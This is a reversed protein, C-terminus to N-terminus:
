KIKDEMGEPYYYSISLKPQTSYAGDASRISLKWTGTVKANSNSDYNIMDYPFRVEAEYLGSGIPTGAYVRGNPSTLTFRGRYMSSELDVYARRAIAADPTGTVKFYFVTDKSSTITAKRDASVPNLFDRKFLPNGAVFSYSQDLSIQSTSYVKIYYTEGIDWEKFEHCVHYITNISDKDIAKDSVTSTYVRRNNSDYIEFQMNPNQYSQLTIVNRDTAVYKYYDAYDSGPMYNSVFSYNSNGVQLFGLHKPVPTIKDDGSLMMPLQEETGVSFCFSSTTKSSIEATFTCQDSAGEPKELNAWRKVYMYGTIDTAQLYLRNVQEGNEDKIKVEVNGEGTRVVAIKVDPTTSFDVNFAYTKVDDASACTDTYSLIGDELQEVAKIQNQDTQTGAEGAYTVASVSMMLCITLVLAVIKKMYEYDDGEKEKQEKHLLRKM